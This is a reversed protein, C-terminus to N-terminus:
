VYRCVGYPTFIPFVMWFLLHVATYPIIYILRGMLNALVFLIVLTHTRIQAHRDACMGSINETFTSPNVCTEDVILPDEEEQSTLRAAHGQSRPSVDLTQKQVAVPLASSERKRTRAEIARSRQLALQSKRLKRSVTRSITNRVEQLLRKSPMKGQESTEEDTAKLPPAAERVHQRARRSRKRDWPNSRIRRRRPQSAKPIEHPGEADKEEVKKPSRVSQVKNDKKPKVPKPEEDMFASDDEPSLLPPPERRRKRDRRKQTQVSMAPPLQSGEGKEEEEGSQLIKKVEEDMKVIGSAEEEEEVASSTSLLPMKNVPPSWHLCEPHLPTRKVKANRLKEMHEEVLKLNKVIIIKGEPTLQFLNLRQLTDAIDHPDMGTDQSIKRISIKDSSYGAMYELVVSKWYSHYSIKGLDSLPKEPSGPMGEIRSLLYSFDILYRGFGMKQYQPMVMICSVNYKQQCAKEKSFYGVLHCGKRDNKTLVYFLFPEVDYYLTKHDLFLKALLCLNQCYIKSVIGDVEFISLDDKRYIENAPPHFWKCKTRHHDLISRSKMYKLCFECVFLKPLMAYEQPYPSSYWTKIVFKGFEILPPTRIGGLTGQSKAAEVSSAMTAMAMEQAKKFLEYDTETVGPPLRDTAEIELEEASVKAAPKRKRPGTSPTRSKKLYTSGCLLPDTSDRAMGRKRNPEPVCVPCIWRGEPLQTLPPDLCAMHFGKDCADCFLLNDADAAEQCYHCSKCELCQWPAARIREVLEMPYKLCSTHASNGCDHCSIFKEEKGERNTDEGQLCFSCIASPPVKPSPFLHDPLVPVKYLKGNKEIILLDMAQDMAKRFEEKFAQDCFLGYDKVISEEIEKATAGPGGILLIAKKVMRRLDVAKTVQSQPNNHMDPDRYTALGQNIVKIIKGVKVAKALMEMTAENSVSHSNRMYTCIRDDGPRQKQSKIRRIGMLLQHIAKRDESTLMAAGSDTGTKGIGDDKHLKSGRKFRPM